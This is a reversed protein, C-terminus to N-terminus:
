NTSLKVCEESVNSYLTAAVMRNIKYIELLKKSLIIFIYRLKVITEHSYMQKLLNKENQRSCSKKLYYTTKYRNEYYVLTGILYIVKLIYIMLM